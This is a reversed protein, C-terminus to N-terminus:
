RGSREARSTYRWATARIKAALAEMQDAGADPLMVIIM